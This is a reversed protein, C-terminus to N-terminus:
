AAGKLRALRVKADEIEEIGRDANKWIDLFEEYTAIAKEKPGAEEYALGLLYYAKVAVIPNNLREDEYRSLAAELLPIADGPRGSEVYVKALTYRPWFDKRIDAAKELAVLSEKLNGRAHEMLGVAHWYEHREHGSDELARRIDDATEQARGFNGKEALLQVQFDRSSIGTRLRDDPFDRRYIDIAKDLEDLALDLEGKEHYVIARLAFEEAFFEGRAQEEVDEAITRNLVNIAEDLKGQYMPIRVLASRGGLRFDMDPSSCVNRYNTEAEGYKRKFLYMNGLTIASSYFTPDVELAEELSEIAKDLEGMKGLMM